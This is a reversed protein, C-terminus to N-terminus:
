RVVQWSGGKKIWFKAIESKGPVNPTALLIPGTGDARTVAILRGDYYPTVTLDAPLPDLKARQLFAKEQDREEPRPPGMAATFDADLAARTKEIKPQDKATYAAHLARVAGIVEAKDGQWKEADLWSWRPVKDVKVKHEARGAGQITGEYVPPEAISRLIVIRTMPNAGAAEAEVVISNDGAVLWMGTGIALGMGPFPSSSGGFSKIPVGNVLIRGAANEPDVNVTFNPPRDQAMTTGVILWALLSLLSLPLKGLM